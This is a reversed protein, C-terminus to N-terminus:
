HTSWDQDARQKADLHRQVSKESYLPSIDSFDHIGLDRFFSRSKSKKSSILQAKM